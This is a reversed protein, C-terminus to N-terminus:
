FPTEIKLVYMDKRHGNEVVLKAIYWEFMPTANLLTVM